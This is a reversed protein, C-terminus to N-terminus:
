WDCCLDPCMFQGCFWLSILMRAQPKTKEHRVPKEKPLCYCEQSIELTWPKRLWVTFNVLKRQKQKIGVSFHLNSFSGMTFYTILWRALNSRSEPNSGRIKQQKNNSKNCYMYTIPMTLIYTMCTRQEISTGWLWLKEFDQHFQQLWLKDVSFLSLLYASLGSM